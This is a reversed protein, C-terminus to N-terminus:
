PVETRLSMYKQDVFPFIVFVTYKHLQIKFFFCGSKPHFMRLGELPPLSCVTCIYSGGNEKGAAGEEVRERVRTSLPPLLLLRPLHVHGRWGVEASHQSNPLSKGKAVGAMNFIQRRIFSEWGRVVM